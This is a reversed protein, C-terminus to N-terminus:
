RPYRGTTCRVPVRLLKALIGSYQFPNDHVQPKQRSLHSLSCLKAPTCLALNSYIELSSRYIHVYTYIYINSHTRTVWSPGVIETLQRAQRSLHKKGRRKGCNGSGRRRQSAKPSTLRKRTPTLRVSKWHFIQSIKLLAPRLGKSPSMFISDLTICITSYMCLVYWLGLM